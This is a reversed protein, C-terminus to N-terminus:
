GGPLTAAERRGVDVRSLARTGHGCAFAAMSTEISWFTISIALLRTRFWGDALRGVPLSFLAYFLAFVTGYLLGMEANGINLDKKIEPALIALINRDLLSMAQTLGVIALAYKAGAPLGKAEAM